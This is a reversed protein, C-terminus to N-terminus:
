PPFTQRHGRDHIRRRPSLQVGLNSFERIGGIDAIWLNSQADLVVESGGGSVGGFPSWPLPSGLGTLENLAGNGSIWVNGTADIAIPGGSAPFGTSPSLAAGTSNWEIVSGANTDTIWLNGTVDVAFSGVASASSLGGGSTYNLSVSWDNPQKALIPQLPSTATALGFLAFNPDLSYGYNTVPHQALNFAAQLTDSPAISSAYTGTGLLDTATFLVSCASGDGEVGGTTAACSNLIDALTNIEVYPVVANGAPVSYRVKGTSIDVLNNVSAFANALGASNGSSTGIYLYSLNGNLADNAAFPATAWASAITTAENLVVPSSSLNGCSGLATMLALNPNTTNPVVTGGTAVLYMQRNPAPCNYGGTVTFNGHSDAVASTFWRRLAGMAVPGPLMSLM